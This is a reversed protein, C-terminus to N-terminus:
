SGSRSRNKGFARCQFFTAYIDDSTLLHQAFPAAVKDCLARLKAINEASPDESLMWDASKETITLSLSWVGDPQQCVYGDAGLVYHVRGDVSSPLVHSAPPNPALIYRMQVGWDEAAVGLTGREECERRVRSYNGDAGVCASVVRVSVEGGSREFVCKQGEMDMRALKHRWHIQVGLEDAVGLLLGVAQDRMICMGFTDVSAVTKNDNVIDLGSVPRSLRQFRALIDGGLRGLAVQGRKNIVVPFSGYFDSPRDRMDFVAVDDRGLRKLLCATLLGSPGAGIVAVGVAADETFLPPPLPADLHIAGGVFDAAAPAKSEGEDLLPADM